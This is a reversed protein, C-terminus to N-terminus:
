VGMESYEVLQSVAYFPISMIDGEDTYALASIRYGKSLSFTDMFMPLSKLRGTSGSKM